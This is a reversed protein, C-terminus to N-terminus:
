KLKISTGTLLLKKLNFKADRIFVKRSTSYRWVRVTSTKGRVMTVLGVENPAVKLFKEVIRTSKSSVIASGAVKLGNRSITYVKVTTGGNTPVVAALISLTKPDVALDIILGKTSFTRLDQRSTLQGKSNYVVLSPRGTATTVIFVFMPDKTTHIILKRALITGRFGRGFPALSLKKGNVTTSLVGRTTTVKIISPGVLFTRTVTSTNGARDTITYTLIYKGVTTTDVAGSRIIQRSINGDINDGASAGPDVFSGGVPVVIPDTTPNIPTITPPVADPQGVDLTAIGQAGCAVVALTNAITVASGNAPTDYTDVYVPLGTSFVDDIVLGGTFSTLFVYGNSLAVGGGLGTGIETSGSVLTPSSPTSLNIVQLGATFDNIYALSGSVQVSDFTNGSGGVYEGVLALSPYASLIDLYKNGAVYVYQGSLTVDSGANVALSTKFTPSSSNSVDIVTLTTVSSLPGLLYAYTGDTTVDNVTLGSQVYSGLLSPTTPNSISLLQLSTGDAVLLVSGSATLHKADGPTDYQGALTPNAPNSVNLVIVGDSGDAVYAYNDVVVVDNATGATDYSGLTKNTALAQHGSLAFLVGIALAISFFHKIKM